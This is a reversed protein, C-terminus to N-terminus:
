DEMLVLIYLRLNLIIFHLHTTEPTNVAEANVPADFSGNTGIVSSYVDLKGKGGERDSVFYLVDSLITSDFSIQPQTNTFSDVNVPAPLKTKMGYSGDKNISRSYLDCRIDEDNVYECLTYVM